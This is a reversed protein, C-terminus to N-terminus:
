KFAFIDLQSFIYWHTLLNLVNPFSGEQWWEPALNRWGACVFYCRPLHHLFREHETAQLSPAFGFICLFIAFFMNWCLFSQTANTLIINKTYFVGWWPISPFSCGKQKPTWSRHKIRVCCIKLNESSSIAIQYKIMEKPHLIQMLQKYLLPPSMNNMPTLQEQVQWASIKRILTCARLYNQKDRQKKMKCVPLMLFEISLLVECVCQFAQKRLGEKESM